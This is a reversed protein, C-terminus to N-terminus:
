ENLRLQMRLQSPSRALRDTTSIQNISSCRCLIASPSDLFYALSLAIFLTGLHLFKELWGALSAERQRWKAEVLAASIFPHERALTERSLRSLGVDVSQAIGESTYKM